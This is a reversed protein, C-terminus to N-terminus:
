LHLTYRRRYILLFPLPLYTTCQKLVVNTQLYQWDGSVINSFSIFFLISCDRALTTKLIASKLYGHTGLELLRELASVTCKRSVVIIEKMAVTDTQGARVVGSWSSLNQHVKCQPNNVSIQVGIKKGCLIHM